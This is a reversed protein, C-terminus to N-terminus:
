QFLPSSGSGAIKWADRIAKSNAWQRFIQHWGAHVPNERDARHQFNLEFYADEMFQILEICFYIAKRPTIQPQPVLSMRDFLQNDLFALELDDSVRRLFAAYREALKSAAGQRLSPAAQWKRCLDQFMSLMPRADSPSPRAVVNEFTTTVVDLGLQRYREFEKEGFPQGQGAGDPSGPAIGPTLYLLWGQTRWKGPDDPRGCADAAFGTEPEPYHITGVLCRVGGAVASPAPTTSDINIEVGFDNRCKRIADGLAEFGNAAGAGSDSVIIYRCRRSVLEYLGLNEFYGGDSINLYNSSARSQAFLESLISILANRPAPRASPGDLRPNGLWWGLRLSLISMLFSAPAPAQYSSNPKAGSGSIAMTTGLQPGDPQTYGVTARYGEASLTENSRSEKQDSYPVQFGCHRPTFFFSVTKREHRALESRSTLSVACNVIPCPGLYPNRPHSPRLWAIPFDDHPDFGTLWNANRHLRSAGLYYSVLRNKDYHHMSFENINIRLPLVVVVVTCAALLIMVAYLSQNAYFLFCWYERQVPELWLLWGPVVSGVPVVCNSRLTVAGALARLLFHTGLSVILLSGALSMAPAVKSLLELARNRVGASEGPGKAKEAKEVLYGGIKSLVWGAALAPAAPQWTLALRALLYPGFVALMFLGLWATIAIAVSAGFRDLWERAADPFDWGMFGIQLVAGSMWVLLIMPPGLAIRLWVVDPETWSRTVHWVWSSPATTLAACVMPILILLLWGRSGNHRARYAVWFGGIWQLSFFLVFLIVATIRPDADIPFAGLIYAGFLICVTACGAMGRGSLDPLRLRPRLSPFHAFAIQRLNAGIIMVAASLSMVWLTRTVLSGVGQGFRLQLIGSLLVILVIGMLFPILFLLNLSMNRIWVASINWFEPRFFSLRPALYTSHQRLFDVPDRESPVPISQDLVRPAQTPDGGCCNAIVGHLWSGIYSGGSVTSLYDIFPFLGQRALGQIVGLHFTAERIGGGSLALGLPRLKHAEAFPYDTSPEAAPLPAMAPFLQQRRVRLEEIETKFVAEFSVPEPSM